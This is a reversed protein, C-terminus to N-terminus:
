NALEDNPVVERVAEVPYTYDDRKIRIKTTNEDKAELSQMDKSSKAKPSGHM